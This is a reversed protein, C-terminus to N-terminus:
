PSNARPTRPRPLAPEGQPPAPPVVVPSDYVAEDWDFQINQPPLASSNLL